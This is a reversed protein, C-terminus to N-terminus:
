NLVILFFYFLQQSNKFSRLLIWSDPSFSKWYPLQHLFIVPSILSSKSLVVVKFHVIFINVRVHFSLIDFTLGTYDLVFRKLINKRGLFYLSLLISFYRISKKFDTYRRHLCTQPKLLINIEM